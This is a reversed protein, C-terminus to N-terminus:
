SADWVRVQSRTWRRYRRLQRAERKQSGAGLAMLGGAVMTVAALLAFWMAPQPSLLQESLLPSAGPPSVLKALVVMGAAGGLLAIFGDLRRTLAGRPM